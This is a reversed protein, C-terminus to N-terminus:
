EHPRRLRAAILGFLLVREHAAGATSPRDLCCLSICSTGAPLTVPVEVTIGERAEFTLQRLGGDPETVRLTRMATEPLSPGPRVEFSLVAPGPRPAYVRLVVPETGVWTARQTGWTELGNATNARVIQPRTSDIISYGGPLRERPEGFPPEGPQLFLTDPGPAQPSPGLKTAGEFVLSGEWGNLFPRPHCILTPIYARQGAGEYPEYLLYLSPPNLADIRERLGRWATPRAESGMTALTAGVMTSKWLVHTAYASVAALLCVLLAAPRSLPLRRLVLFLGAVQVAAVVPFVYKCLKFLRWSHGLEGTWPDHAVLRFYAALGAFAVLAAALPLAPPRRAMWGAGVLFAVVALALAVTHRPSEPSTEGPSTPTFGLAFKAYDRDSWPIHLGARELGAMSIVSRVARVNEVNGFLALAASAAGLFGLLRVRMPSRWARWLAAGVCALGSLSLFPSLESYFTLQTALTLGLLAANGPRWKAPAQLRALLALGGALAATGYVQCLFGIDVSLCLSNFAVAIVFTGAAAFYRPVRLAWRCLLFVGAINLTAGWAMVAPYLEIVMRGPVAGRVLALLYMAGMRHNLDHLQDMMLHLPQRPDRLLPSGFGHLQLWEADGIYSMADTSLFYSGSVALQMLALGLRVALCLGLAACVLRPRPLRLVQRWRGTVVAGLALAAWTGEVVVLCGPAALGAYSGWGYALALWGTGILASLSLAEPSPHALLRTRFVAALLRGTLTAVVGLLGALSAVEVFEFM